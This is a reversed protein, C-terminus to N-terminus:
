IFEFEAFAKLFEKPGYPPFFAELIQDDERTITGIGYKPHRIQRTPKAGGEELSKVAEKKEEERKEEKAQKTEEEAKDEMVGQKAEERAKMVQRKLEQLNVSKEEEDESEILDKPIISLYRSPGPMTRPYDPNTYYSLELFDKARTMGVFFLRREEEEEEMDKAQLPILGYNVGTLFVYTFELGKSAHLTMLKVADTKQKTEKTLVQIGYLASSNLFEKVAEMLPKKGERSVEFIKKLIFLIAERDEEYTSATPRICTDLNFYQYVEEESTFNLAYKSFEIMRKLLGSKEINREKVLLAADKSKRREGYEKDKLVLLASTTDKENVAFRLVRIFFNLVPIDRVTKKLSVEFPIGEREFVDEMVQSQNQLRYFVAIEHYEVGAQYLEKIRDALYCAEQFANYHRKVMIKHGAEREGVLRKGNQQFRRAAEIILGSSRYNIPLSMEKAGYQERIRYFVDMPLGRFSYIVQNPDGVAFLSTEEGKLCSIFDLQRQDSDQVEDIIIWKPKEPLKDVLLIANELLDSFSMKNQKVKEEKLRKALIEIDDQIKGTMRGSQAQELRKKLRNKYKITLKEEEILQLAMDVEEDAEMITFEKTYGLQEIPLRKKLLSLAVGHFTGFLETEEESLAEAGEKLRGKIEAAAKNTFTLVVMDQYRIQKKEHLYKVKTTLVTTKGSGVNANVLLANSEDLVAEKQYPNLRELEKELEM